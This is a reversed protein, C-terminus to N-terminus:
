SILDGYPTLKYRARLLTFSIFTPIHHSINRSLQSCLRGTSIDHSTPPAPWKNRSFRLPLSFTRYKRM